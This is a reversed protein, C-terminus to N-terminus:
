TFCLRHRLARGSEGLDPTPMSVVPHGLRALEDFNSDASADPASGTLIVAEIRLGTAEAARATAGVDHLVGLRNPAVLILSAPDFARCLDANTAGADDLPTFLGGATEVLLADVSAALRAGEARIRPLEIRVNASRAARHPSVPEAFAYLPPLRTGCALGLMEADATGGTEIPKWGLVRAGDAAWGRLWSSAFTTKGVSTGTGAVLVIRGSM